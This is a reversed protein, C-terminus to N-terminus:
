RRSRRRPRRMSTRIWWVLLVLAAGITLVIAAASTQTTRVVIRQRALLLNGSPTSLTVSVTLDGTTEAVVPIRVAQTPHDLTVMRTRGRPFRLHDSHVSLVGAMSWDATKTLTIPLAGKLSTLTIDAGGIGLHGLEADVAGNAAGLAGTRGTTGLRDSEALLFGDSLRRVVHRGQTLAGALAAVRAQGGALSGVQAAPWPASPGPSALARTGPVGNSGAALTAFLSSLTASSVLPNGVLGRLLTTIFARNPTWGDPALLVVGLPASLSPRELHLLALDALLREAALVPDSGPGMQASLISDAALAVIGPSGAPSFPEGWSLTASTPTALSSDPIVLRSIGAAALGGATSSTVPSTAIFGAAAASRIGARRLLRDGRTVQAPVQTTLGSVALAGPDISTFPSRVVEHDPATVAGALEALSRQGVSGAALRTAATPALSVAASAGPAARVGAAVEAVQEATATPGLTLIAAARLPQVAPSEAFTLFTTISTTSSGARVELVVPYVGSCRGGGPTCRLTWTPVASTGQCSRPAPAPSSGTLVEVTLRRADAAKPLCSLAIPATEDIQSTPGSPSMASVFGSRTTLPAYLRTSVTATGDGAPRTFAVSFRGTGDASPLVTTTQSVLTVGPAAAAAPRVLGALPM